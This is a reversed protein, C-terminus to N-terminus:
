KKKKPPAVAAMASPSVTLWIDTTATEFDPMKFEAIRNTIKGDKSRGVLKFPVSAGAKETTLRLVIPKKGDSPVVEVKVDAPLGIASVEIDGTFGGTKGVAIPIETPKGPVLAFRDGALTLQFDPQEVLVRLLFAHRPSASGHLDRVELAYVGDIPVAFKLTVDNSPNDPQANQLVKGMADSLRLAPTIALGLSPGYATIQLTTGKKALIRYKASQGAESIVGSASFPPPIPTEAKPAEIVAHSERRIRLPNRALPTLVNQWVDDNTVVPIAALTAKPVNWGVVSVSGPKDRNVALPFAFDAYAETTLTLRYVYNVGGAFHISSDPSSPFAFLRVYYTSDDPATFAILPDLGRHDHNQELVFGSKSVIQLVADMPSRFPFHADLAAVLTQGKKLTVAFLDVDGNKQLQGNVLNPLAIPQAHAVDDNPEVERCEPFTSIAFPRLASAGTEDTFRLWYIGPLADAAISIAFQGKTKGAIGTISKDSSWVKVPWADFTGIATVEVTQGRPGGTPFLHTVTPAAYASAASWALLWGCLFVCRTM